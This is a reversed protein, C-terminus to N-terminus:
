LGPRRQVQHCPQGRQHRRRPHVQRSMVLHELRVARRPRGSGSAMRAAGVCESMASATVHCPRGRRTTMRGSAVSWQPPRTDGLLAHAGDRLLKQQPFPIRRLFPFGSFRNFCQFLRTGSEKIKENVLRTQAPSRSSALHAARTRVVFSQTCNIACTGGM